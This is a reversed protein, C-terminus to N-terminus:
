DNVLVVRGKERSDLRVRAGPAFIGDTPIVLRGKKSVKYTTGRFHFGLKDAAALVIAVHESRGADTLKTLALRMVNKSPDAKVIRNAAEEPSSATTIVEYISSVSSRKVSKRTAM